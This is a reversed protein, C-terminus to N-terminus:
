HHGFDDFAKGFFREGLLFGACVVFIGGFTVMFEALSPIYSFYTPLNDWGDYIPVLQGAVVLDYRQFFQGVLTMFAALAMLPVRKMGSSILLGLPIALGVTIEFVWFNVALPGSLIGEAATRGLETGGVFFAIFRWATAVVILFLLLALVKGASQVGKLVAPEMQRGRLKYAFHTFIIIAAAGSMFASALFYIPLQSGYWFPRGSLTAFVAGLNTNAMVEALAGAVGLVVAIKYRKNLILFFEVFMFGVAMGYLTGMWWINSTFNPTLVNYLLMRHPNEIEVGILSFGGIITVISLFVMRNSLAAMQNGGFLHSIAALLCLGTSTIAFFAYGAILIGWPMERTNNYVQHHGAYFAYLGASLGIAALMLFTLTAKNVAPTAMKPEAVDALSLDNFM